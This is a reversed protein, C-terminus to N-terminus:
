FLHTIIWQLFGLIFLVKFINVIMTACGSGDTPQQPTSPQSQDADPQSYIPADPNFPREQTQHSFPKPRQHPPTTDMPQWSGATPQPAAQGTAQDKRSNHRVYRSRGGENRNPQSDNREAPHAHDQGDPHHQHSEDHKKPNTCYWGGREQRNYRASDESKNYM